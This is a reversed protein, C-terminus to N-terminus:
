RLVAIRKKLLENRRSQNAAEIEMSRRRSDFVERPQLYREELGAALSRAEASTGEYAPFTVVSVEYLDVDLLTRVEEGEVMDWKTSVPLFGFSMGNVHGTRVLEVVDRGSQTNPPSIEVSLGKFDERLTLTKASVRGIPHATDHDWLARVDPRETLTRAFAGRAIREKGFFLDTIEDFVAAYGTIVGPKGEEERVELDTVQRVFLERKKDSM